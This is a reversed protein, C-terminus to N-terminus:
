RSSGTVNSKPDKQAAAQISQARLRAQTSDAAQGQATYLDALAYWSDPDAPTLSTALKQQAVARDVDNLQQYARARGEAIKANFENRLESPEDGYPSDHEAQEFATLAEKPQNMALYLLGATVYRDYPVLSLPGAEKVCRLADPYRHEKLYLGLLSSWAADSPHSKVVRLYEQEAELPHNASAFLQAKVLHLNSDDPFLSEAHDLASAAERIRSLLFYISAANM